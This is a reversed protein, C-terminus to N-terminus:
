IQAGGHRIFLGRMELGAFVGFLYRMLPHDRFVLMDAELLRQQLIHLVPRLKKEVIMADAQLREPLSATHQQSQHVADAHSPTSPHTVAPTRASMCTHHRQRARVGM